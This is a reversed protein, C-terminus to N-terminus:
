SYVNKRRKMIVLLATTIAAVIVVMEFGPISKKEVTIEQECYSVGGDNDIITLNVKYKGAKSYKHTLNQRYSKSGDGFDWTYNVIYGDPDFGTFNFEINEKERPNTPKWSFNVVPYLNLITIQKVISDTAGDNDRVTLTINYIGDDTYRHSPNKEHSIVGDGFNWTYSVINGDSDHSTSMLHITDATTPKVPSYNFDAVPLINVVVIQKTVNDTSGDDDTVILTVTYTKKQDYKHTPNKLNSTYGDGFVWHWSVIDGDSDTSLDTFQINDLISPKSPWFTFDAHPAVNKVTIYKFTSNSNNYEDTVTLNVKYTGDDAYKHNPNQLDSTNGDGFDWQWSIIKGYGTSIDTFQIQTSTDPTSPSYIFKAEPPPPLVTVICTDGDKEGLNDTVELKVTYTGISTYIHNTIDGTADFIGDNNFDWKYDVLTSGDSATSGSGNFNVIRNVYVTKDPGANAHPANYNDWVKFYIAADNQNITTSNDPPLEGSTYIYGQLTETPDGWLSDNKLNYYGIYVAGRRYTTDDNAGGGPYGSIDALDDALPSDDEMLMIRIEVFTSKVIFEHTINVTPNDTDQSCHHTVNYVEEGTIVQIKYYWDMGGWQDGGDIKQIKYIKIHLTPFIEDENGKAEKVIVLSAIIINIVIGISLITSIKKKM